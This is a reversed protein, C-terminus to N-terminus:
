WSIIHSYQTASEKGFLRYDAIPPIEIQESPIQSPTVLRDLIGPLHQVGVAAVITDIDDEDALAHLYGAMSEDRDALVTQFAEPDRQKTLERWRRITALDLNYYTSATLEDESEILGLETFIESDYQAFEDGIEYEQTDIGALRVDWIRDTAYGAAELEDSPPWTADHNDPHYQSIAESCAEIAVVDPKYRTIAGTLRAITFPRRHLVGIVHIGGVRASIDCAAVGTPQISEHEGAFAPNEAPTCSTDQTTSGTRTASQFEELDSQRPSDPQRSM